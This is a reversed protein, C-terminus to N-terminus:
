FVFHNAGEVQLFSAQPYNQDSIKFMLKWGSINVLLGGHVSGASGLLFWQGSFLAESNQRQGSPFLPFPDAHCFFLKLSATMSSKEVECFSLQKFVPSAQWPFPPPRLRGPAPKCLDTRAPKLHRKCGDPAWTLSPKLYSWSAKRETNNQVRMELFVVSIARLLTLFLNSPPIILSHRGEVQLISCRFVILPKCM